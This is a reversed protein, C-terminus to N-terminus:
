KSWCEDGTEEIIDASMNIRNQEDTAYLFAHLDWVESIGEHFDKM